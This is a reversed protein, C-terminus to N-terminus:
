SLRTLLEELRNYSINMGYEMGSGVHGDRSEKSPYQLHSRLTTVGDVEELTVTVHYVAGPMNDYGETSVLRTPADIELYEGSFSHDEGGPEGALVYHWRGGVRLDIDCVKVGGPEMGYWERVHEPKTIAEFVLSRPATFQRSIVLETDSPYSVTAKRAASETSSM